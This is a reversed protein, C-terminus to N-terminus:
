FHVIILESEEIAKLSHVEGPEMYVCAGPLIEEGNGKGDDFFVKGKVITAVVTKQSNHPPITEGKLLHAGVVVTKENVLLRQKGSENPTHLYKM